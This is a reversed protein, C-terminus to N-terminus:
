AMSPAPPGPDLDMVAAQPATEATTLRHEVGDEWAEDESLVKRARTPYQAAQSSLRVEQVHRLRDISAAVGKESLTVSVAGCCVQRINALFNTSLVLDVQITVRGGLQGTRERMRKSAQKLAQHYAVISSIDDKV